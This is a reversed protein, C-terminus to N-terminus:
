GDSDELKEAKALLAAAEAKLQDASEGQLAADLFVGAKRFDAKAADMKGRAKERFAQLEEISMNSMKKAM